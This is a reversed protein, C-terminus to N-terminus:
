LRPAKSNSHRGTTRSHYKGKTTDNIPQPDGVPTMTAELVATGLPNGQGDFADFTASLATQTTGISISVTDTSGNISPESEFPVAPDLWVGVGAFDGFASSSDISATAYGGDIATDCFVGVHHDHYKTSRAASVTGPLVALLFVACLAIALSRRM